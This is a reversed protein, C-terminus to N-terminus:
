PTATYVYDKDTFRTNLSTQYPNMCSVVFAIRIAGEQSRFVLYDGPRSYAGQNLSNNPRNVRDNFYWSRTNNRSRFTEMHMENSPNSVNVRTGGWLGWTSDGYEYGMVNPNIGQMEINSNRYFTTHNGNDGKTDSYDVLYIIEQYDMNGVRFGESGRSETTIVPEGNVITSTPIRNSISPYDTKSVNSNLRGLAADSFYDFISTNSEIVTDRDYIICQLNMDGTTISSYPKEIFFGRVNQKNLLYHKVRKGNDAFALNKFDGRLPPANSGTFPFNNLWIVEGNLEEQEFIPTIENINATTLDSGIKFNLVGVGQEPIMSSVPKPRQTFLEDVEDPRLDFRTNLMLIETNRTLAKIEFTIRENGIDLEDLPVLLIRDKNVEAIDNYLERGSHTKVIIEFEKNIDSTEIELFDWKRVYEFNPYIEVLVYQNERLFLSTGDNSFDGSLNVLTGFNTKVLENKRAPFRMDHYDNPLYINQEENGNVIASCFWNIRCASIPDGKFRGDMFLPNNEVM